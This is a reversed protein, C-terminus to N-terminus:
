LAAIGIGGDAVVDESVDGRQGKFYLSFSAYVALAFCVVAVLLAPFFGALPSGVWVIVWSWQWETWGRRAGGSALRQGLTWAGVVPVSLGCMAACRVWPIGMMHLSIATAAGWLLGLAWAHALLVVVLWRRSIPRALVYHVGSYGPAAFLGTGILLSVIMTLLPIFPHLGFLVIRELWESSLLAPCLLALLCAVLTAGVTGGSTWWWWGVGDRKASPLPSPSSTSLLSWDAQAFRNWTLWVAAGWVLGVVLMAPVMYSGLWIEGRRIWGPILTGDWLDIFALGPLLYPALVPLSAKRRGRAPILAAQQLWYIINCAGAVVVAWRPHPLFGIAVIMSFWRGAEMGVHATFVECRAAGRLLAYSSSLPEYPRFSMLGSWFLLVIVMAATGTPVTPEQAGVWRELMVTGVVMPVMVFPMVVAVFGAPGQGPAFFTRLRLDAVASVVPWRVAGLM